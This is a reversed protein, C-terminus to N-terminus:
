PRTDDRTVRVLAGPQARREVVAVRERVRELGGAAVVVEEVALRDRDPQHEGARERRRQLPDVGDVDVAM